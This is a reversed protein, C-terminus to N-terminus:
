QIEFLFAEVVKKSNGIFIKHDVIFVPRKLFTYEQLIWKKYDDEGLKKENFGMSRYILAKRSFLSEYNGALERMEELQALTIPSTKIDQMQFSDPENIQAM